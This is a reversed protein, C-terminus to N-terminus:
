GRKQSMIASSYVCISAAVAVNLSEQGHTQIIRILADARKILSASLGQGEHGMLWACPHPLTASALLEHLYQGEHSSTALFPVSLHELDSEQLSEVLRLSFHAGMGARLVKGSWLAASGKLALVQSCGMAAATRLIAGVNGADQLRDLILTMSKPEIAQLQPMECEFGFHASSGLASISDFLVDSILVNQAVLSQFAKGVNPWISESFVARKVKVGQALAAQCLHEGEIWFTQTQKYHTSEQSLRRLAKLVANDKSTILLPPELMAPGSM